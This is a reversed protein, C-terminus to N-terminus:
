ALIVWGSGPNRDQTSRTDAGESLILGEKRGGEQKERPQEEKEVQGADM